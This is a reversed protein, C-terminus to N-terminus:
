SRAPVVAIVIVPVRCRVPTQYPWAALVVSGTENVTKSAHLGDHGSQWVRRRECSLSGSWYGPTPAATTRLTRIPRTPANTNRPGPMARTVSATSSAGAIVSATVQGVVPVFAPPNDPGDSATLPVTGWLRVAIVASPCVIM